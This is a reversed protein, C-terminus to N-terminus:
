ENRYFNKFVFSLITISMLAGTFINLHIDIRTFDGVYIAPGFAFIIFLLSCANECEFGGVKAKFTSFFAFIGSLFSSFIIGISFEYFNYISVILVCLFILYIWRNKLVFRYYYDSTDIKIM